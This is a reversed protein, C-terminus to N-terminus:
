SNSKTFGIIKGRWKGNVKRYSYRRGSSSDRYNGTFSVLISSGKKEFNGFYYYEFGCDLEERIKDTAILTIKVGEVNPFQELMSKPINETSLCMTTTESQHFEKLLIFKIIKSKESSSLKSISQAMAFNSTAIFVLTM